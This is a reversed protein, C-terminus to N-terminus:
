LRDVQDSFAAIGPKGRKQTGAPTAFRDLQGQQRITVRLPRTIPTLIPSNGEMWGNPSGPSAPAVKEQSPPLDLPALITPMECFASERVQNRSVGGGRLDM